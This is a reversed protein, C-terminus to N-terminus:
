INPHKSMIISIKAFKQHFNTSFKNTLTSWRMGRKQLKRMTCQNCRNSQKVLNTAWPSTFDCKKCKNSIEGRHTKLHTRLNGAEVSAYSCQNCKNPKEGSHSKLHRRLDGAWVSTYNCKYLRM